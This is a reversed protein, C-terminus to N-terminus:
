NANASRTFWWQRQLEPCGPTSNGGRTAVDIMTQVRQFAEKLALETDKRFLDMNTLLTKPLYDKVFNSVDHGRAGHGDFVGYISFDKEVQLVFFSDQNPSEPKM